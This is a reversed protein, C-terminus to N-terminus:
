PGKKRPGARGPECIAAMPRRVDACATQKEVWLQAALDPPCRLVPVVGHAARQEGMNEV